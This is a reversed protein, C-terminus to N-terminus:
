MHILNNTHMNYLCAKNDALNFNPGSCFLFQLIDFLQASYQIYVLVCLLSFHIYGISVVLVMRYSTVRMFQKTGCIVMFYM